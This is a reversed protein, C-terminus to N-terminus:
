IGGSHLLSSPSSLYRHASAMYTSAYLLGISLPEAGRHRRDAIAMRLRPLFSTIDGTKYLALKLSNSGETYGGQWSVM